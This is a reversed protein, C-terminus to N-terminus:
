IKCYEIITGIFFHEYCCYNVNKDLGPKEVIQDLKSFPAFSTPLLTEESVTIVTLCLYTKVFKCRKEVDKEKMGKKKITPLVEVGLEETTSEEQHIQLM